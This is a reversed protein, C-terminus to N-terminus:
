RFSNKRINLKISCYVGKLVNGRSDALRIFVRKYNGGIIRKWDIRLPEFKLHDKSVDFDIFAITKTLQSGVYEDTILDTDVLITQFSYPSVFRWIVDGAITPIEFLEKNSPFASGDIVVNSGDISITAVNSNILKLLSSIQNSKTLIRFCKALRSSIKLIGNALGINSKGGSNQVSIKCDLPLQNFVRSLDNFTGIKSEPLYVEKEGGSKDIFTILETKEKVNKVTDCDVYFNLLGIEYKEDWVAQKENFECYLKGEEDTIGQFYIELPTITHFNNWAM